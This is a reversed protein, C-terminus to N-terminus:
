TIAIAVSSSQSLFRAGIKWGILLLVFSIAGQVRAEERAKHFHCTIALPKSQNMASNAWTTIGRLVEKSIPNEVTM